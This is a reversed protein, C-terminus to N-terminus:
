ANQAEGSFERDKYDTIAATVAYILGSIIGGAMAYAAIALPVIRLMEAPKIGHGIFPISTSLRCLALSCGAVAGYGFGYASKRLIRVIQHLPSTGAFGGTERFYFYCSLLGAMAGSIAGEILITPPAARPADAPLIFRGHFQMMLPWYIGVFCAGCAAAVALNRQLRPAPGAAARYLAKGFQRAKGFQSLGMQIAEAESCGEEQSKAILAMLHQRVEEIEETQLREPLRKLQAQVQQLYEEIKKDM